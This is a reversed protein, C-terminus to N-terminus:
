ATRRRSVRVSLVGRKSPCPQAMKARDLAGLQAGSVQANSAVLILASQQPWPHLLSAKFFATPTTPWPYTAVTFGALGYEKDTQGSTAYRWLVSQPLDTTGLSAPVTCDTLDFTSEACETSLTASQRLIPRIPLSRVNAPFHIFRACPLFTDASGRETIECETACRVLRDLRESRESPRETSRPQERM